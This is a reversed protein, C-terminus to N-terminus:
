GPPRTAKTRQCEVLARVAADSDKLPFIAPAMPRGGASAEIKVKASSRLRYFLDTDDIMGGIMPMGNLTTGVADVEFAPAEAADDFIIQASNISALAEPSQSKWAPNTLYWMPKGNAKGNFGFAFMVEDTFAARMQCHNNAETAIEVYWGGVQRFPQMPPESELGLVFISILLAFIM